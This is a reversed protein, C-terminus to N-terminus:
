RLEEREDRVGPALGPGGQWDGTGPIGRAAGGLLADQSTYDTRCRVGELSVM